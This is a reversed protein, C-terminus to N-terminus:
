GPYIWKLIEGAFFSRCFTLGSFPLIARGFRLRQGKTCHDTEKPINRVETWSVPTVESGM